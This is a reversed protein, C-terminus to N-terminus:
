KEILKAEYERSTLVMFAAIFLAAAIGLGTALAWIYISPIAAIAYLISKNEILFEYFKLNIIIHAILLFVAIALLNFSLPQALPIAALGALFVLFALFAVFASLVENPTGTESEFKKTRFLFMLSYRATRKLLSKARPIVKQFNHKLQLSKDTILEVDKELRQGLEFEEAGLGKFREDFGNHELFVKKLISFYLSHVSSKELKYTLFHWRLALLEPGFGKNAPKKSNIAQYYKVEPNKYADAFRQLTDREIVVDSDLFVLIDAKANKAGTNRTAAVCKNKEHRIYRVNYKEAVKRVEPDPSADDVVIVEFNRFTNNFISNLLIGLNKADNYCPIIVSLHPKM